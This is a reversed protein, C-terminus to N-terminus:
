KKEALISLTLTMAAEADVGHLLGWMREGFHMFFLDNIAEEMSLRILQTIINKINEPSLALVAGIHVWSLFGNQGITGIEWGTRSSSERIGIISDDKWLVDSHISGPIKLM